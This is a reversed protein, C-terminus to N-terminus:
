NLVIKQTRLNDGSMITIFYLGKQYGTMDILERIMGDSTILSKSFVQQGDINTIYAQVVPDTTTLEVTFVGNTPNPYCIFADATLSNDPIFDDTLKNITFTQFVPPSYGDTIFYKVGFGTGSGGPATGSLLASNEQLDSLQLWYPYTIRGFILEDGEEDNWTIQYEYPEYARCTVVPTSTFVPPMSNVNGPTPTTFNRWGEGGDTYRGYSINELQATYHLTEFCTRGDASLGIAGGSAPLKFGLHLPGQETDEDAWIIKHEGPGIITQQPFSLPIQYMGPNDPNNTLFLGAINVPENGTNLIEIWDNYENEEDANFDENDALVENIRLSLIAETFTPVAPAGGDSMSERWNSGENNDLDASILEISRDEAVAPWPSQKIYQVSDIIAGLDDKIVLKGVSDHLDGVTWEFVQTYDGLKVLSSDSTLVIYQRPGITVSEPFNFAVNGQLSYNGVDITTAHKPNYIEIFEPIDGSSILYMIETIMIDAEPEFIAEITTNESLSLTVNESTSDIGSVGEWRVFRYGESPEVTLSLPVNNFYLGASDVPVEIGQIFFRGNTPDDATVTLNYMGSLTFREQIFSRMYDPRQVAFERMLDVYGEWEEITTFHTGYPNFVVDQGGYTEIQMPIEERIRNQMSDIMHLVREPKYTTNIHVAFTQIFEDRFSPSKLMAVMKETSWPRLYPWGGGGIDSAAFTLTNSYPETRAYEECYSYSDADRQEFSLDTDYMIWRWKGYNEKERWFKSNLFMDINAIYIQAIQLNMYNSIDVRRKLEEYLVPNSMNNYYLYNRLDNYERANGYIITQDDSLMDINDPDAGYNMKVYHENIKEKFDIIGYFNGNLYLIGHKSAQAAIAMSNRALAQCLADRFYTLSWDSGGSRLIVTEWKDFPKDDFFRYNFEGKGYISRAFLALSKQPMTRSANGYVKIGAYQNISNTGDPEFLEVNVMKEIDSLPHSLIGEAGSLSESNCSISVVPLRESVDLAMFHEDIFYTNVATKSPAYKNAFVKAKIIFTESGTIASSYLASSETPESGDTTYRIEADEIASSLMVTQSGSYFGGPISFDPPPAIGELNGSVNATGPTPDPFYAFYSNGDPFRGCSIDNSQAGFTLSDILITDVGSVKFIGIEEGDLSLKFNTHLEGQSQDDDAYILLFGGASISVSSSFRYKCPNDLNDTIYYGNLSVSAGTTNFLEIWDDYEGAEDQLTATNGAMFENVVVQGNLMASLAIAICLTLASKM